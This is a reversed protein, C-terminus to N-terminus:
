HKLLKKLLQRTNNSLLTEKYAENLKSMETKHNIDHLLVKATQVVALSNSKLWRAIVTIDQDKTSPAIQKLCTRIFSAQGSGLDLQVPMYKLYNLLMSHLEDKNVVNLIKNGYQLIFEKSKISTDNDVLFATIIKLQAGDLQAVLKPRTLLEVIFFDRVQQDKNQIGTFIIELMSLPSKISEQISYTLISRISKNDYFIAPEAGAINAIISPGNKISIKSTLEHITHASFSIIYNTDILLKEAVFQNSAMSLDGEATNHLDEIKRFNLTYDSSISVLKARVINALSSRLQVSPPGLQPKAYSNCTIFLSLIYLLKIRM